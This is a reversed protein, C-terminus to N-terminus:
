LRHRALAHQAAALLDAPLASAAVHIDEFANARAMTALRASSVVLMQRRLRALAEPPLRTVLNALAEGSSILTILPDPARALADFHRRTLRPPGREYVHIAEVQAGRARLTATILDRGGPAGVIGFRRGRVEALEPLALLGESDTRRSPALSTVGRRALARQTGTGVAFIRARRPIRMARDAIFAFRVATPSTFILADFRDAQFRPAAAARVSLGPLRIPTGHLLGIRRALPGSTSAPRTVVVAIEALTSAPPVHSAGNGTM